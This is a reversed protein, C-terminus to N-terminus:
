KFIYAKTAIISKLIFIICNYKCVLTYGQHRSHVIYLSSDLGKSLIYDISVTQSACLLIISSMLMKDM